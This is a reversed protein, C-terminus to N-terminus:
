TCVGQVWEGCENWFEVQLELFVPILTAIGWLKWHCTIGQPCISITFEMSLLNLYFNYVQNYMIKKPEVTRNFFLNVNRFCCYYRFPLFANNWPLVVSRWVLDRSGARERRGGERGFHIINCAFTYWNKCIIQFLITFILMHFTHM